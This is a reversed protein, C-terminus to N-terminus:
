SFPVAKEPSLPPLFQMACVSFCSRFWPALSMMWQKHDRHPPRTARATLPRDKKRFLPKTDPTPTRTTVLHHLHQHTQQPPTTTLGRGHKHLNNCHYNHQLFTPTSKTSATSPNPAGRRAESSPPAQPAGTKTKARQVHM